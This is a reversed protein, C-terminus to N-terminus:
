TIHRFADYEMTFVDRTLCYSNGAMRGVAALRAPDIRGEEALIDPDLHFLLVRGFVVTYESEPLPMIQLVRCEMNMPSEAVMPAKVVEAPVPTLGSVAFESTQPPYNEACTSMQQAIAETVINVVFDGHARVNAITDKDKGDRVAASFLVIPPRSSVANFFSFPAVNAVGSPSLTSVFGIPRPVVTGTLMKYIRPPALTEPDFTTKAAMRTM